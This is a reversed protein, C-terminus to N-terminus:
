DEKEIEGNSRATRLPQDWCVCFAIGDSKVCFSVHHPSLTTVVV